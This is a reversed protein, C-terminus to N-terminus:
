ISPKSPQERCEWNRVDGHHLRAVVRGAADVIKWEPIGEETLRATFVVGYNGPPIPEPIPVWTGLCLPMVSTDREGVNPALWQAEICHHIPPPCDM